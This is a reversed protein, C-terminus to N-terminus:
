AVPIFGTTGDHHAGLRTREPQDLFSGVFVRRLLLGITSAPEAPHVLSASCWRGRVIAVRHVGRWQTTSAANSLTQGLLESTDKALALALAFCGAALRLLIRWRQPLPMSILIKMQALLPVISISSVSSGSRRPSAMSPPRPLVNPRCEVSRSRSERQTSDGSCCTFLVDSRGM